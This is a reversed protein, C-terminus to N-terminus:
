IAKSMIDLLVAFLSLENKFEFDFENTNKEALPFVVPFTTRQCTLDYVSGVLKQGIKFHDLCNIVKNPRSHYLKRM